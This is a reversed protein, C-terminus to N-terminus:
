HPYVPYHLYKDNIYIHIYTQLIHTYVHLPSIGLYLISIHEYKKTTCM